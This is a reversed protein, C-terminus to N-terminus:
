HLNQGVELVDINEINSLPVARAGLASALESIRGLSAGPSETDIVLSRCNLQRACALADQWPDGDQLPVNARGDSLLILLASPTAYTKALELAHALPTRGGTPLYELSTVAEDIFHSPELLVQASTGRFVILVVEDDKQFSRNLMGLVAGKVLRMKEQAAHSGSSDILFVYRIGSRSARVKEHLDSVRLQPVGTELVAHNLTARLDIEHPDETRRTRVVPGPHEDLTTQSAGRQARNELSTRIAPVHVEV